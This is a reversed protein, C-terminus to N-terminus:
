YNPNKSFSDGLFSLLYGVIVSGISTLYQGDVQGLWTLIMIGVIIVAILGFVPLSITRKEALSTKRSKDMLEGLSKMLKDWDEAQYNEFAYQVTRGISSTTDEEDTM